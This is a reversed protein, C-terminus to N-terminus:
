ASPEPPPEVFTFQVDTRTLEFLRQVNPPGPVLKLSLAQDACRSRLKLLLHLGTSDLFVLERLDLMLESLGNTCLRDLEQQLPEVQGLDLEGALRVVAVGERERTVFEFVDDETM